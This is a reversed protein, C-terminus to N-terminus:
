KSSVKGMSSLPRPSSFRYDGPNAAIKITGIIINSARSAINLPAVHVMALNMGLSQRGSQKDMM